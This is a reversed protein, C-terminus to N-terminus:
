AQNHYNAARKILAVIEEFSDNGQIRNGADSMWFVNEKSHKGGRTLPMLHGVHYQSKGAEPNNAAEVFADYGIPDGTILCRRGDVVLKRGLHVEIERMNEDSLRPAGVFEIIQSLLQLEVGRCDERSAFQPSDVWTAWRYDRNSFFPPISQKDTSYAKLQVKNLLASPVKSDLLLERLALIEKPPRLWGINKSEHIGGATLATKYEVPLEASGVQNTSVAVCIVLDNLALKEKTKLCFASGPKYTRGLVDEIVQLVNSPPKNIGEFECIEAYLMAKIMSCEEQSAGSPDSSSLYSEPSSVWRDKM